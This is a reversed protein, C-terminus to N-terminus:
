YGPNQRLNPNADIESQPIWVFEHKNSQFVGGSISKPHDGHLSSAGLYDDALGWRVLDFFRHSEGTLELVREDIIAQRAAEQGMNRDLMSVQARTRVENVLDIAEPTSGSENLAEARMLLVDAYRIIRWNNGVNAGLFNVQDRTGLDMGAYKRTFVPELGENMAVGIDGMDDPDTPDGGFDELYPVGGYGTSGPYDYALTADRRVTEGNAEFLDKVWSNVIHGQDPSKQPPAYDIHYTGLTGVGPVDTGWAFSELGLYQLSFVDEENFENEETFNELYREAPLLDYRGDMIRAFTTAADSWKGQYLQTKGLLAIAAGSTARGADIDPWEDPLMNAAMNLDDEIQAYVAEPTAQSPFFDAEDQSTQTVLPINGYFHLLYWYNFARMFHAQGLVENRATQDAVNDANVNELVSNARFISKYFEQWPETAWRATGPGGQFTSMTTNTGFPRINFVDSRLIAGTHLIRGWCFTNPVPHIMGNVAARANTESVWFADERVLNNNNLNLADESCASPWVLAAMLFSLQLLFSRSKLKM